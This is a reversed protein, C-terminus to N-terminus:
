LQMEAPVLEPEENRTIILAAGPRYGVRIRDYEELMDIIYSEIEDNYELDFGILEALEAPSAGWEGEEDFRMNYHKIINGVGKFLRDALEDLSKYSLREPIPRFVAQAQAGNLPVAMADAFNRIYMNGDLEASCQHEKAFYVGAGAMSMRQISGFVESADKGMRSISDVVIVDLGGDKCLEFIKGWAPSEDVGYEFTSDEFLGVFFLNPDSGQMALYNGLRKELESVYNQEQGIPNEVFRYFAVKLGRQTQGDARAETEM